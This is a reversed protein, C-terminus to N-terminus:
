TTGLGRNGFEIEQSAYAHIEVQKQDPSVCVFFGNGTNAIATWASPTTPCNTTGADSTASITDMFPEYQWSSPTGSDTFAGSNNMTPGWRYIMNPGLWINSGSVSQFYYIIPATLGYDLALVVTKGSENFNNGTDAALVDTLNNYVSSAAKTEDAMFEVARNLNTQIDSSGTAVINERLMVILGWGTASVVFLTMISALLLELLTFGKKSNKLLIFSILKYHSIM